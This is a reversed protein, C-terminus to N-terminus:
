GRDGGVWEDGFVWEGGSGCGGNFGVCVPASRGAKGTGGCPAGETSLCHRRPKKSDLPSIQCLKPDRVPPNKLSHQVSKRDKIYSTRNQRKYLRVRGCV